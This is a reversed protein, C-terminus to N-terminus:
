KFIGIKTCDGFRHLNEFVCAQKPFQPVAPLSKDSEGPQPHVRQLGVGHTLM